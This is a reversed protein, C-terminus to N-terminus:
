RRRKWFECTDRYLGFLGWESGDDSINKKRGELVFGLNRAQRIARENTMSIEASIRPLDLQGFPFALIRQIVPIRGAGIDDVAVACYIDRKAPTSSWGWFYAGGILQNPMDEAAEGDVIAEPLIGFGKFPVEVPGLGLRENVWTAVRADCGYLVGDVVSRKGFDESM